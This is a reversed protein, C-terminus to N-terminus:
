ASGGALRWEIMWELDGREVRAEHCADIAKVPDTGVARREILVVEGAVHTYGGIFYIRPGYDSDSM